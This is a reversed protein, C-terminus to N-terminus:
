VGTYKYIHWVLPGQQVTAVYERSIGMNQPIEHNTGFIEFIVDEKEVETDVEAWICIINNQIQATLIKAKIPMTAKQNYVDIEFKWITKM